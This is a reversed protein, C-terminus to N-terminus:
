SRIIPLLIMVSFWHNDTSITISGGYKDVIGKISRIGYGHNQKDGKTTMFVGNVINLENIYFNDIKIFLLQNQAFVTLKIIRKDIQEITKVSEIANDLANGFLSLIDLVSVFSLHEGDAVCTFNIHNELFLSGKQSLLIDLVQNGTKYQTEYPLISRELENLYEEKRETDKENRLLNIHHKLDHYRQNIVESNKLSLQYQEYQKDLLNKMTYAERNSFVAMKHERQSYLLIIGALDVLTRIYLIESPYQGSFPTDINIFSINSITFISVGILVVALVDNSTIDFQFNKSKYRKELFMALLFILVYTIVLTIISISEAFRSFNVQLFISVQWELSAALEALTFAIVVFYGATFLNVKNTTYIYALMILVAIIMNPIWMYIPMTGALLQFGLIVAFWFVHSLYFHIGKLRRPLYLIFVFAFLWEAIATHYRPIDPVTDVIELFINFM